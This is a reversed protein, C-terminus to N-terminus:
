YRHKNKLTERMFIAKSRKYSLGKKIDVLGTNQPELNYFFLM